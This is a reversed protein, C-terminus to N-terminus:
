SGSDLRRAMITDVPRYGISELLGGLARHQIKVHHYVVQCGDLRLEDDCWKVFDKGIGAGRKSRELYIVDQGAQLSDMYHLAPQVFFVAYGVLKNFEDRATFIRLAGARDLDLYRQFNPKLQIDQYHAIEHFHLELLPMIESFFDESATERAFNM